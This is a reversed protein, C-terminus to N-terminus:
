SVIFIFFHYTADASNWEPLLVRFGGGALDAWEPGDTADKLLFRQAEQYYVAIVNAALATQPCDTANIFNASTVPVLFGGGAGPPIAGGGLIDCMQLLISNLRLNQFSEVPYNRVYQNIQNILNQLNAPM